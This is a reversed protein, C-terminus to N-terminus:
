ACIINKARTLLSMMETPSMGDGDDTFSIKYVGESEFVESNFDITIHSRKNQTRQCAEISNKVFERLYQSPPCDRGLNHILATLGQPNVLTPQFNM